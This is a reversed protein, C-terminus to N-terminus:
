SKDQKQLREFEHLSIVERRWRELICLLAIERFSQRKSNKIMGLITQLQGSFYNAYEDTIKAQPEGQLLYSTGTYTKAYVIEAIKSLLTSAHEESQLDGVAKQKELLTLVRHVLEEAQLFSNSIALALNKNKKPLFKLSLYEEVQKYVKAQPHQEGNELLTWKDASLYKGDWQLSQIFILSQEESLLYRETFEQVSCFHPTEEFVCLNITKGHIDQLQIKLYRKGNRAIEEEKTTVLGLFDFRIKMTSTLKQHELLTDFAMIFGIDEQYLNFSEDSVEQIELQSEMLSAKVLLSDFEGKQEDETM